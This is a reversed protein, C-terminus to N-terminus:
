AAFRQDSSEMTPSHEVFVQLRVYASHKFKATVICPGRRTHDIPVWFYTLHIPPAESAGPM